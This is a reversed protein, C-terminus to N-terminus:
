EGQPRPPSPGARCDDLIRGGRPGHEVPCRVPPRRTERPLQSVQGPLALVEYEPKSLERWGWPIHCGSFGHRVKGPHLGGNHRARCAFIPKGDAEFGAAVAGAPINGSRAQIWVPGQAAAPSALAASVGGALLAAGALAFVIGSWRWARFRASFTTGAWWAGGALFALALMAVTM